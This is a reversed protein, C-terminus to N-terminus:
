ATGGEIRHVLPVFAHDPHYLANMTEFDPKPKRCIAEFARRVIEVNEQSM